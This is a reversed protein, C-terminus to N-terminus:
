FKKRCTINQNKTNSNFITEMADNGPLKKEIFEFIRVADIKDNKGRVFGMSQKLHLPHYCYMLWKSEELAEYLPWNFRGTNEM